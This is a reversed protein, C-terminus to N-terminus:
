GGLGLNCVPAEEHTDDIRVVIEKTEAQGSSGESYTFQVVAEEDPVSKGDTIATVFFVQQSRWSVEGPALDEGSFTVQNPQILIRDPRNSSVSVSASEEQPPRNLRLGILAASGEELVTVEGPFVLMSEDIKGLGVPITIRNSTSSGQGSDSSAGSDTLNSNSNLVLFSVKAATESDPPSAIKTITFDQYSAWNRSNFTIQSPEVALVTSSLDSQLTVPSLPPKPLRVRLTGSPVEDTLLLWDSSFEFPAYSGPMGAQRCLGKLSQELKSGGSPAVLMCIANRQLAPLNDDNWTDISPYVYSVRLSTEQVPKGLYGEALWVCQHLAHSELAESGPYIGELDSNTPVYENTLAFIEHTHKEDCSVVEIEKIFDDASLSNADIDACEGPSTEWVPTGSGCSVLSLVAGILVFRILLGQKTPLLPLSM